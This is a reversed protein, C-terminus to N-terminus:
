CNTEERHSVRIEVHLTRWSVQSSTGEDVEGDDNLNQKSHVGIAYMCPPFVISATLIPYHHHVSSVPSAM